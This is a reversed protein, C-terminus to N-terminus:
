AAARAACAARPRKQLKYDEIDRASNIDEDFNPL